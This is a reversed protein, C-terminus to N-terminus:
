NSHDFDYQLDKEPTSLIHSNLRSLVTFLFLRYVFGQLEWFKM